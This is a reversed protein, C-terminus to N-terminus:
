TLRDKKNIQAFPQCSTRTEDACDSGGRGSVGSASSIGGKKEDSRTTSSSSALFLKSEICERRGDEGRGDIEGIRDEKARM